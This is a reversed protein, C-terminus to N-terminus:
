APLAPEGPVYCAPDAAANMRSLRDHAHALLLFALPTTFPWVAVGVGFTGWVLPSDAAFMAGAWLLGLPWVLIAYALLGAAACPGRVGEAARWAAPLPPWGALDSRDKILIAVPWFAAFFAAPITLSALGTLIMAAEQGEGRWVAFAIPLPIATAAIVTLPLCCIALRGGWDTFLPRSKSAPARVRRIANEALGASLRFGILSNAVTWLVFCALGAWVSSRGRVVAMGCVMGGTVAVAWGVTVILAFFAQWITDWRRDRRSAWAAAILAGLTLDTPGDPSPLPWPVPSPPALPEGGTM